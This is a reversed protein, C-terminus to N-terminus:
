FTKASPSLMLGHTETFEQVYIHYGTILKYSCKKNTLRVPTGTNAACKLDVNKTIPLYVYQSTMYVSSKININLFTKNYCQQLHM